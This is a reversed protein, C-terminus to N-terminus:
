LTGLFHNFFNILLVWIQKLAQTTKWTFVCDRFILSSSSRISFASTITLCFSGVSQTFPIAATTFGLLSRIGMSGLFKFSAILLSCKGIVVVSSTTASMGWAFTNESRSALEPYQCTFNSSALQFSQLNLPGNPLYRNVLNSNPIFGGSTNWFLM